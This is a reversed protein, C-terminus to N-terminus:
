VRVKRAGEKNGFHLSNFHLPRFCSRRFVSMQSQNLTKALRPEHAPRLTATFCVVDIERQLADKLRPIFTWFQQFQRFKDLVLCHVEDIAIFGLRNLHALKQIMAVLPGMIAAEFSCVLIHAKSATVDFSKEEQVRSWDVVNCFSCDLSVIQQALLKFPVFLVTCTNTEVAHLQYLITKGAGTPLIILKPMRNPTKIFDYAQRQDISKFDKMGFLHFITTRQNVEVECTVLQAKRKVSPGSSNMNSELSAQGVLPLHNTVQNLELASKESHSQSAHAEINSVSSGTSLESPSTAGLCISNWKMSYLACIQLIDAPVGVVDRNSLGYSEYSTSASHNASLILPNSFLHVQFQRAYGELVHRFDSIHIDLNQTLFYARFHAGLKVGDLPQGNKIVFYARSNQRFASELHHEEVRKAIILYSLVFKTVLGDAFSVLLMPAKHVMQKDAKSYTNVVCITKRVFRINRDGGGSSNSVLWAAEETMRAGPGGCLHLLKLLVLGLDTVTKLIRVTESMAPRSHFMKRTFDPQKVCVANFLHENATIIGDGCNRISNSDVVQDPNIWDPDISLSLFLSSAQSCLDAFLMQLHHKTVPVLTNGNNVLIQGDDSIQLREIATPVICLNAVRKFNQLASFPCYKQETLYMKAFHESQSPNSQSSYHASIFSLRLCYLLRVAEHKLFDPDESIYGYPKCVYVLKLYRVVCFDQQTESEKMAINLFLEPHLTIGQKQEMFFIFRALTRAYISCSNRYSLVEFGHTPITGDPQLKACRRLFYNAKPVVLAIDNIYKLAAEYHKLRAAARDPEFPYPTPVEVLALNLRQRLKSEARFNIQQVSSQSQLPELRVPPFWQGTSGGTKIGYIRKLDSTPPINRGEHRNKVHLWLHSRCPYVADKPGCWPCQLCDDKVQVTVDNLEETQKRKAAMGTEVDPLSTMSATKPKSIDRNM